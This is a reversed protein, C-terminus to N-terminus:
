QSPLLANLASSVDYGNRELADIAQARSFGMSLLQKVPQIDEDDGVPSGVIPPPSHQPPQQVEQQQQKKRRGFIRLSLKSNRVPVSSQKEEKASSTSSRPKPSPARKPSKVKQQAPSSSRPSTAPSGNLAQPPSKDKDQPSAPTSPKSTSEADTTAEPQTSTSSPANETDVSPRSDLGSFIEDFSIPKATDSLLGSNSKNEVGTVTAPAQQATFFPNFGDDINAVTASSNVGTGSAPVASPAVAISPGAPPFVFNDDFAADFAPAANSADVENGTPRKGLAEDFASIGTNDAPTATNGQAGASFAEFINASQSGSTGLMPRSDSEGRPQTVEPTSETIVPHAVSFVDDFITESPKIEPLSLGTNARTRDMPLKALPLDDSDSDSEDVDLDKLEAGLDTETLGEPPKQQQRESVGPTEVSSFQAGFDEIAPFQAEMAELSQGLGTDGAAPSKQRVARVISPEVTPPSLPAPSPAPTSSTPPTLFLENEAPPSLFDESQPSMPELSAPHPKPTNANTNSGVADHTSTTEQVAETVNQNTGEEITFATEFSLIGNPEASSGIGPREFPNNSRVPGISQIDPTSPLPYQAANTASDPTVGREPSAMPPPALSHDALEAEAEEREATISTVENAAEELEKEVKAKEAEKASLQKKAIALLGKQQKAEKKVKELEQRLRDAEQGVAVMKGHLERAEEKDRLFVGEIEAKEVRIASLNSEAHILEERLKQIENFQNTQREKLNALLKFEADYSAKSSSLQTQLTALQVAQEALLQEVPVRENKLAELSRNTSNLQNQANGIEASKDQLPSSVKGDDDVDGLLDHHQTASPSFPDSVAHRSARPPLFAPLKQGTGQPQLTNPGEATQVPASPTDDFSFLDNVHEPARHQLVPSLSAANATLNNRVSPPVLTPPLVAPIDQGTLKKQILHVAIAFGNRTLHGNNDLDALDWVRALDEGPLNSKLMFPVAVDGEIYGRKQPDLEDFFRDATAKEAATVDWQVAIPPPFPNTGFLALGTPRPPITPPVKHSPSVGTYNPQLTNQGTYQQPVPSKQFTSSVPSFSGSSGSLQSGSPQPNGAAQQRLGPPLSMPIVSLQRSMVAQIFYMGITFDTIDLIGRDQTDALNWIQLLQDNSLKSKLFIERAKEGSILGNQPNAQYFLGHFKARDQPTLPPLSAPPPSRSSSLGSHQKSVLSLGEIIPLPGPRGLLDKSVKEGKQAWGMLRVAISVGRRSLWGKNDEDSITWIERLVTPPLNAGSFAKVAVDGTLVGLKQSDFTSFIQNVLATEPSTLSFTATSM